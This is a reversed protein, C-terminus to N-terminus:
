RPAHRSSRATRLSSSRDPVSRCRPTAARVRAYERALVLVRDGLDITKEIERRYSTMAAMWDLATARWGDLGVFTEEDAWASERRFAGWANLTSIHLSANSGRPGCPM